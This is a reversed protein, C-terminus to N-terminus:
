ALDNIPADNVAQVIVLDVVELTETINPYLQSKGLTRGNTARLTFYDKYDKSKSFTFKSSDIANKKVSDIGKLCNAKRKYGDSMLINNGKGDFLKFRFEESNDKYVEFSGVDEVRLRAKVVTMIEKAKVTRGKVTTIDHVKDEDDDFEEIEEPTLADISDISDLTRFVGWSVLGLVLLLVGLAIM